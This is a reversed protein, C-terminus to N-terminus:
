RAQFDTLIMPWGVQPAMDGCGSHLARDLSHSISEFRRQVFNGQLFSRMYCSRSACRLNPLLRVLNTRVPHCTRPAGHSHTPDNGFWSHAHSFYHKHTWQRKEHLKPNRLKPRAIMAVNNCWLLTIRHFTVQCACMRVFYAARSAREFPVLWLFCQALVLFAEPWSSGVGQVCLCKQAFFVYNYNLCPFEEFVGPTSAFCSFFLKMGWMEACIGRTVFCHECLGIHCGCMKASYNQRFCLFVYFFM